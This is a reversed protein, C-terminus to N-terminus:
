QQSKCIDNGYKKMIEPLIQMIFFPITEEWYCYIYFHAQWEEM